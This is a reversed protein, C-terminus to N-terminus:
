RGWVLTTSVAGLEGTWGGLGIGRACAAQIFRGGGVYGLRTQVPGVFNSGSDGSYSTQAPPLACDGAAGLIVPDTYLYSGSVSAGLARPQLFVAQATRPTVAPTIAGINILVVQNIQLNSVRLTSFTCAGFCQLKADMDTLDTSNPNLNTNSTWLPSSYGFTPSGGKIKMLLTWGGGNSSMDCYVMFPLGPGTGDPDIQYVGDASGTGPLDAKIEACSAKPQPAPAPPPAPPPVPAPAPAPPPEPDPAPAIPNVSFQETSEATPSDLSCGAVVCVLGLFIAARLATM